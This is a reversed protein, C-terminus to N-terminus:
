TKIMFALTYHPPLTTTNDTVGTVITSSTVDSFGTGVELDSGGGLGHAHGIGLINHNHVKQGGTEAPAYSNGAGIVLQFDLDPTGNNGDCYAWGAPIDVIAGKWIAIIGTPIKRAM